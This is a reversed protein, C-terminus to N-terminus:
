QLYPALMILGWRRSSYYFVYEKFNKLLFSKGGGEACEIKESINIPIYAHINREYKTKHSM